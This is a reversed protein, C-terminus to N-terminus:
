PVSEMITDVTEEMLDRWVQEGNTLPNQWLPIAEEVTWESRRERELIVGPVFDPEFPLFLEDPPIVGRQPQASVAPAAEEGGSGGSTAVSVGVIVLIVAALGGAGAMLALRRKEQPIKDILRDVAALLRVRLGATKEAIRHLVGGEGALNALVARARTAINPFPM